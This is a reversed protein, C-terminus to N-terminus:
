RFSVRLPWLRTRDGSTSLLGLVISDAPPRDLLELTLEVSEGARVSSRDLTVRVPSAGDSGAGLDVVAVQWDATLRDAVAELTLRAREGVARLRVGPERPVLAVYAADEGSPACPDGGRAAARNSWARQVAFGSATSRHTDRTLLGCLDVPEVGAASFAVTASEPALAFGRRSTDPNTAMEVLEHSATATLAAEDGCRPVVAYANVRGEWRLPRHYARPGAGCYREADADYLEVGAPLYVLLLSEPDLTGFRGAGAERRLLAALDVAHLRAPLAADLRVAVGPRGRGICDGGTACLGDVSDTWWSSDLIVEGFRELRAVLRPDDEGFTVSVIRPRRLFPGGRHVIRPLRKALLAAGTDPESPSAPGAAPPGLGAVPESLLLSLLLMMAPARSIPHRPM